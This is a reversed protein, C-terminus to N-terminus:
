SMYCGCLAGFAPPREPDPRFGPEGVRAGVQGSQQYLDAFSISENRCVAAAKEPFREASRAILNSLPM